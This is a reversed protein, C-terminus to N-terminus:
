KMKTMENVTMEIVTLNSKLMETVSFFHVISFFM